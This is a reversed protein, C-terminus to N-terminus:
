VVVLDPGRGASEHSTLGGAEPDTGREGDCQRLGSRRFPVRVCPSTFAHVYVWSLNTLIQNLRDPDARVRLPERCQVHDCHLQKAEVQPRVLMALDALVSDVLLEEIRFDVQAAEIRAFNLVDNVLAMLTKASRRVRGLDERQADTIPRRLEMDLLDVYGAIANLPTRLEHSMTTLFLGKARNSEEAEARAREAERYLRANDVATAAHQALDKALALDGEDYRRGPFIGSDASRALATPAPDPRASRPGALTAHRADRRRAASTRRADAYSVPGCGSM